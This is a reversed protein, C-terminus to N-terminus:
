GNAAAGDREFVLRPHAEAPLPTTPSSWSLNNQYVCAYGNDCQGVTQMLDMALELSPLQTQQGIQKANQDNNSRNVAYGVRRDEFRMVILRGLKTETALVLWSRIVIEDDLLGQQM